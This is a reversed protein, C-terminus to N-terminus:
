SGTRATVRTCSTTAGTRRSGVAATATWALPTRWGRTLAAAALRPVTLNITDGHRWTPAEVTTTGGAALTPMLRLLARGDALAKYGEAIAHDESDRNLKVAAAYDEYAARAQEPDMQISELEM